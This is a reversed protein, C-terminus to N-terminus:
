RCTPGPEERTAGHCDALANPKARRPHAQGQALAATHTHSLALSHALGSSTHICEAKRACGLAM